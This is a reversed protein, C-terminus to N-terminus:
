NVGTHALRTRTTKALSNTTTFAKWLGQKIVQQTNKSKQSNTNSRSKVDQRIVSYSATETLIYRNM